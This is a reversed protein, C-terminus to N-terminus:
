QQRPPFTGGQAAGHVGDRVTCIQFPWWQGLVLDGEGYYKASAPHKKRYAPDISDGNRDKAKKTILGHLIDQEFDERYWRNYLQYSDAKLDPPFDAAEKFIRPLGNEPNLIKAKKLIYKNVNLRIEAKHVHDRLEEYLKNLQALRREVECRRICNKLAELATLDQPRKKGLEKLAFSSEPISTLWKPLTPRTHYIVKSYTPISLAAGSDTAATEQVTGSASSEAISPHVVTEPTSSSKKNGQGQKMRTAKKKERREQHQLKRRIERLEEADKPTTTTTTDEPPHPHLSGKSQQEVIEPNGVSQPARSLINRAKVEAAKKAFARATGTKREDANAITRLESLKRSLAGPALGAKSVNERAKNLMWSPPAFPRVNRQGEPAAM